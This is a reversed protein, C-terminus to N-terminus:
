RPLDKHLRPIYAPGGLAGGFQNHRLPYKRAAFTNRADFKDNRLFEYLSGHPQNTGSKTVVNVVGGLTNGFEASMSGSQVKFEEVADVTPQVSIDKYYANLNNAGDILFANSANPEGNISVQAVNRGRDNFRVGAPGTGSKVNPALLELGLVTRANSPLDDICRNEIM